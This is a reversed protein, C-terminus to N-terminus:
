GADGVGGGVEVLRVGQAEVDLGAPDVDLGSVLDRCRRGESGQLAVRRRRGELEVVGVVRAEGDRELVTVDVGLEATRIAPIYGPRCALEAVFRKCPEDLDLAVLRIQGAGRALGGGPELDPVGARDLPEMSEDLTPVRPGLILEGGRSAHELLESWLHREMPEFALAVVTRPALADLRAGAGDGDVVVYSIGCRELAGGLRELIASWATQIPQAFGFTEDTSGVLPTLGLAGLVPPAFPGLTWTAQALTPYLRPVVIAVPARLRLDHVAVRRLGRILAGLESGLAARAGDRDRARAAIPAGYYRDRDAAMFVNFGRLGYAVTARAQDLSDDASRPPLNWPGGVGLEAVFPTACSGTAWLCRDRLLRVQSRVHYLDIGILEAADFEAPSVQPVAGGQALNHTFAVSALGARELTTRMRRLARAFIRNRAALWDLVPLLDRPADARLSTPPQLDAAGRGREVALERYAAVAEPHYDQDFPGDRFVLPAENDLQVAVIPGRPWALAAVQRAFAELWRDVEDLFRSSAYSPIPLPRPPLPLWLPNGGPTRAMVDPIELVRRPLGLWTLEANIHPGPRLVVRLGREAALGVFRGLDLRRDREGFDHQGPAVEHRGWPVYTSLCTLGLDRVGDLLRPWEAPPHHYYHVEGSFLPLVEDGLRLGQPVVAVKGGTRAGTTNPVRAGYGCSRDPDVGVPFHAPDM